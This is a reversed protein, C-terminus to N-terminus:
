RKFSQYIESKVFRKRVYFLQLASVHSGLKLHRTTLNIHLPM